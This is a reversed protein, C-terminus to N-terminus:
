AVKVLVDHMKLGRLASAVTNHFVFRMCISTKTTHYPLVKNLWACRSLKQQNGRPADCM